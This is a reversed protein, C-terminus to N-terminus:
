FKERPNCSMESDHLEYESFYFNEELATPPEPSYRLYAANASKLGSIEATLNRLTDQLSTSFGRM